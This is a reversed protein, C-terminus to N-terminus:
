STLEDPPPLDDYDVHPGSDQLAEVRKWEASDENDLPWVGSLAFRFRPSRLALTEIRDIFAPGHDAVIDELPGAAIAAAQQETTMADIMLLVIQFALDPASRVLEHTCAWSWALRNAAVGDRGRLEVYELYTHAVFSPDFVGDPACPRQGGRRCDFCRLPEDSM